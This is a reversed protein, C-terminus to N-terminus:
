YGVGARQAGIHHVWPLSHRSGWYGFRVSPDALLQHTFIGESHEVQPWGREMLSRRYMSPNTTFNRRHELWENGFRDSRDTYDGPHMEVIGGAATEQENWPQRRLALQVLNPHETLVQQMAALNVQRNCTFDDELHFVFPDDTLALMASWAFEIAGGFGRRTDGGLVTFGLPEFARRLRDTNAPNASDDYILRANIDGDLYALASPIATHVHERGDTIVLLSTM